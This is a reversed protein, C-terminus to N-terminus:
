GRSLRIFRFYEYTDNPSEYKRSLADKMKRYTTIADEDATPLNVVIKMLSDGTFIAYIQATEGALNGNFLLDGNKLTNALKTNEAYGRAKLAKTVESKNSGWAIDAFVFADARVFASWGVMTIFLIFKLSLKMLIKRM